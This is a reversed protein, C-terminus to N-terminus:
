EGTSKKGAPKGAFLPAKSNDAPYFAPINRLAPFTISHRPTTIKRCLTSDPSTSLLPPSPIGTEPFSHPPFNKTTPLIEPYRAHGSHRNLFSSPFKPFTKQNIPRSLYTSLRMIFFTRRKNIRHPKNQPAATACGRRGVGGFMITM